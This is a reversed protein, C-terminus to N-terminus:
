VENKLCFLLSGGQKISSFMIQTRASVPVQATRLNVHKHQCTIMSSMYNIPYWHQLTYTWNIKYMILQLELTEWKEQATEYTSHSGVAGCNM